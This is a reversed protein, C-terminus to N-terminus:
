FCGLNKSEYDESACAESCFQHDPNGDSIADDENFEKDCYDCKILGSISTSCKIDVVIEDALRNADFTSLTVIRTLALRFAIPQQLNDLKSQLSEINRHLRKIEELHKRKLKKVQFVDMM